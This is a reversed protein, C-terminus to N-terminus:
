KLCEDIWALYPASGAPIPLAIIEPLEYSHMSQIAHAVRDFHTDATKISLLWERSTEIKGEWRYISSMPALINVCAALRQEVLARAIKEAEEESGCACLIVIKGTM